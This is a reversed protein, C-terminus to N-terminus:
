RVWIDWATCSWDIGSRALWSLQWAAFPTGAIPLLTKPITRAEPWMRTGFRRGSDCM